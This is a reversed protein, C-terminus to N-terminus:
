RSRRLLRAIDPHPNMAFMIRLLDDPDPGGGMTTFDPAMGSPMAPRLGAELPLGADSPRFPDEVNLPVPPAQPTLPPAVAADVAAAMPAAAQLQEAAQREGYDGGGAVRLPQRANGPGGDTRASLAGPGSVPAPNTPQRRGGRAM